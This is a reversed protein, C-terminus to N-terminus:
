RVMKYVVMRNYEVLYGSINHVISKTKGNWWTTEISGQYRLPLKCTKKKQWSNLNNATFHMHWTNTFLGVKLKVFFIMSTRMGSSATCLVSTPTYLRYPISCQKDLLPLITFKKSTEKQSPHQYPLFTQMISWKLQHNVKNNNVHM